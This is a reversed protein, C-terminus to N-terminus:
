LLPRLENHDPKGSRNCQGATLVGAQGTITRVLFGATRGM